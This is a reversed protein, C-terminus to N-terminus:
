SQKADCVRRLVLEYKPGKGGGRFVTPRRLTLCNTSPAAEAWLGVNGDPWRPWGEGLVCEDPYPDPKAAAQLHDIIDKQNDLTDGLARIAQDKKWITACLPCHRCGDDDEYVVEYHGDSCVRM